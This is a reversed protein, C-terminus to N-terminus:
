IPSSCTKTWVKTGPNYQRWNMASRTQPGYVGDATLKHRTQVRKVVAATNAGYKGDIRLTSGYCFNLNRQLTKIAATPNGFPNQPDRNPLDGLKLNCTFNYDEWVGPLTIQWGRQLKIPYADDCQGLKASAQAPAASAPLAVALPALALGVVAMAARISPM